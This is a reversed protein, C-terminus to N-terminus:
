AVPEPTFNVSLHSYQNDRNELLARVGFKQLSKERAIIKIFNELFAFNHESIM